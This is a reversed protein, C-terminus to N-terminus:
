GHMQNIPNLPLEVTFISGQGPQSDVYVKGGHLMVIRRVIALGLGAGGRNTSRAADVKYFRDFIHPLHDAEIGEGQDIVQLTVCDPHTQTRVEIPMGEASYLHANEILNMVVLVLQSEDAYLIPTTDPDLHLTLSQNKEILPNNNTKAVGQILQHLDLPQRNLDNSETADLSSMLHLENILRELRKVQRDILDLREVQKAETSTRRLLYTNTVIISLPTRLDHSTDRIFSALLSATEHELASRLADREIKKRETVDQVLVLGRIVQGSDDQIPAVSTLLDRDMFRSEFTRREGTLVARFNAQTVEALDALAVEAIPHGEFFKQTFGMQTLLPGDALRCRLEQDYIFVATDPLNRALLHYDSEAQRQAEQAIVAASIDRGVSQFEVIRGQDDYIPEETWEDSIVKSDSFHYVHKHMLRRPNAMLDALLARVGDDRILPLVPQGIMEEPRKHSLQAYAANVYTYVGDVTFRCVFESLSDLISKLQELQSQVPPSPAPAGRLINHDEHQNASDAM